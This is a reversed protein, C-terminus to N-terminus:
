QHKEARNFWRWGLYFAATVYPVGGLVWMLLGALQQHQLLRSEGYWSSESFTLLAGLFGTHMLTVLLALLAPPTNNHQSRLVSWWFVGASVLFCLHEFLHWWLNELALVYLVPTHWLWLIGGHILTALMPRRAILLLPKFVLGALTPQLAYWQPLPRAIVWLPAIAVMMLMHQMMHAASNTEAWDDLPGFLTVVSLANAINFLWWDRKSPRQKVCGLWYSIWVIALLVAGTLVAAEGPETLPNHAAALAPWLMLGMGVASTHLLRILHM